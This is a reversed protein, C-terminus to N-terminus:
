FWAPRQAQIPRLAARLPLVRDAPSPRRVEGAQPAAGVTLPEWERGAPHRARLSGTPGFSATGHAPRNSQPAPGNRFKLTAAGVPAAPRTANTRLPYGRSESVKM